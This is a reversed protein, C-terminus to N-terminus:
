IYKHFIREAGNSLANTHINCVPIPNSVKNQASCFTIKEQFACEFIFM